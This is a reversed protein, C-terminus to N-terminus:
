RDKRHFDDGFNLRMEIRATFGFSDKSARVTAFRHLTDEIVLAVDFDTRIRATDTSALRAGKLLIRRKHFRHFM